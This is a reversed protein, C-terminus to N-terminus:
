ITKSTDVNGYTNEKYVSRRRKNALIYVSEFKRPIVVGDISDRITGDSMHHIIM